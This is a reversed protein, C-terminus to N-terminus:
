YDPPLYIAFKRESDLIESKVSLDDYVKGTQAVSPLVLLFGLILSLLLNKM